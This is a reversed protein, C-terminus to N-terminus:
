YLLTRVSPFALATFEDNPPHSDLSGDNSLAVLAIACCPAASPTSNEADDPSVPELSHPECNRGVLPTLAGAPSGYKVDIPPMLKVSLLEPTNVLTVIPDADHLRPVHEPPPPTEVRTASGLQCLPMAPM